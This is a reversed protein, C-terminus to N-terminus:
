SKKKKKSIPGRTMTSGSALTIPMLSYLNQNCKEDSKSGPM